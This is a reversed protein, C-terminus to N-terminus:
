ILLCVHGSSHYLMVYGPQEKDVFDWAAREALTKSLPYYLKKEECFVEDSWDGESWVYGEASSPPQVMVSATSSTLIVEKVGQLKCARLTNLTGERAPRLLEAEPDDPVQPPCLSTVVFSDM